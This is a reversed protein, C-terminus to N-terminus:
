MITFAEDTLVGARPHALCWEYRATKALDLLGHTNSRSLVRFLGNRRTRMYFRKRELGLIGM